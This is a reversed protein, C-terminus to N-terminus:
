KALPASSEVAISAQSFSVHLSLAGSDRRAAVDHTYGCVAKAGSYLREIGQVGLLGREAFVCRSAAM